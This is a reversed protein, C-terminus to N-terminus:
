STPPGFAGFSRYTGISTSSREFPDPPRSSPRRHSWAPHSSRSRTRAVHPSIVPSKPQQPHRHHRYQQAALLPVATRSAQRATVQVFAALAPTADLSAARSSLDITTGLFATSRRDWRRRAPSATPTPNSGVPGRLERRNELGSALCRMSSQVGLRRMLHASRRGRGDRRSPRDRPRVVLERSHHLLQPPHQRHDRLPRSCSPDRM